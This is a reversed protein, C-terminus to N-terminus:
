KIFSADMPHSMMVMLVSMLAAPRAPAMSSTRSSYVIIFASPKRGVTTVNQVIKLAAAFDFDASTSQIM